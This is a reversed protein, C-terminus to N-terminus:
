LKKQQLAVVNILFDWLIFATLGWIEHDKHRWSPVNFRSHIPHFDMIQENSSM